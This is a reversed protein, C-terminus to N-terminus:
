YGCRHKKKLGDDSPGDHNVYLLSEFFRLKGTMKHDNTICVFGWSALHNMMEVTDKADDKMGTGNNYVIVPYQMNAKELDAPYWFKYHKYDKEESDITLTKVSHSGTAAFHAEIPYSESAFAAPLVSILLLAALLMSIMKRM